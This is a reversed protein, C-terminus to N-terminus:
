KEAPKEAATAREATFPVAMGNVNLDGKLGKGDRKAVFELHLDQDGVKLDVVFQVDQAKVSGSVLKAEQGDQTKLTGTLKEGEQTLTVTPRYTRDPTEIVLQWTGSLSSTDVVAVEREGTFPRPETGGEIVGKIKDGDITAKVTRKLTQGEREIRFTFQLANGNVTVEAVPTERGDRGAITGTLKEGEQKLKLIPTTVGNPNEVSLKWTGAFSAAVAPRAPTLFLALVILALLRPFAPRM